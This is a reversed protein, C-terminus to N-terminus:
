YIMLIIFTLKYSMKELHLHLKAVVIREADLSSRRRQKRVELMPYYTGLGLM